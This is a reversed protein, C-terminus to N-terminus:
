GTAQSGGIQPPQVEIWTWGYAPHRTARLIPVELPFSQGIKYGAYGAAAAAILRVLPHAKASIGFAALGGVISTYAAVEVLRIVEAEVADIFLHDGAWEITQLVSPHTDFQNEGGLEYEVRVNELQDGIALLQGASGLGLQLREILADRKTLAASQYYHHQLMVTMRYSM